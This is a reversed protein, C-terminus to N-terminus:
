EAPGLGCGCNFLWKGYLLKLHHQITKEGCFKTSATTLDDEWAPSALKLRSSLWM